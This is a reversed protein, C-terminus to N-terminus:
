TGVAWSENEIARERIVPALDVPGQLDWPIRASFGESFVIERMRYEVNSFTTANTRRHHFNALFGNIIALQEASKALAETVNMIKRDSFWHLVASWSWVPKREESYRVPKPFNGPGRVGSVYQHIQQRTRELRKGIQIQSVLDSPDVCLVKHALGVEKLEHLIKFVADALSEAERECFLLVRGDISSLQCDQCSGGYIKNGLCDTLELDDCFVISFEFDKIM